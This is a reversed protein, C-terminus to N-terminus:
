FKELEDFIVLLKRRSISDISLLQPLNLLAAELLLCLELVPEGHLANVSGLNRRKGVFREFSIILHIPLADRDNASSVSHLVHIRVHANCFVDM